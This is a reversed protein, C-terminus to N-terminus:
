RGLSRVRAGDIQLGVDRILSLNAERKASMLAPMPVGLKVSDPEFEAVKARLEALQQNAATVARASAGPRNLSIEKNAQARINANEQAM